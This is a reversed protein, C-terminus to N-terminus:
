TLAVWLGALFGSIAAIATVSAILWVLESRTWEYGDTLDDTLDIM